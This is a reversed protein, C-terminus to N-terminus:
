YRSTDRSRFPHQPHNETCRWPIQWPRIEGRWQQFIQVQLPVEPSSIYRVLGEPTATGPVKWSMTSPQYRDCRKKRGVVAHIQCREDTVLRGQGNRWFDFGPIDLCGVNKNIILPPAFKRIKTSRLDHLARDCDVLLSFNLIKKMNLEFTSTGRWLRCGERCALKWPALLQEAACDLACIQNTTSPSCLAAYPRLDQEFKCCRRKTVGNRLFIDRTQSFIWYDPQRKTQWQMSQLVASNPGSVAKKPVSQIKITCPLVNAWKWVLLLIFVTGVFHPLCITQLGTASGDKSESHGEQPGIIGGTTSWMKLSIWNKKKKWMAFEQAAFILPNGWSHTWINEKMTAQITINNHELFYITPEFIENWSIICVENMFLMPNSFFFM